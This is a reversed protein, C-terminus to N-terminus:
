FVRTRDLTPLGAKKLLLSSCGECDIVLKSKLAETKTSVGSVRSSNLLFSCVKSSLRYEAGAEEALRALFKDFLMRNLVCTVSAGFQVKFELGSPSVFIASRIENEIIEKPPRLGLQKLGQLSVHGACHSPAGIKSHEECVLVRIGLKAM